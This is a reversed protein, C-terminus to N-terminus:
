GNCAEKLAKILGKSLAIAVFIPWFIAKAYEASDDETDQLLTICWVFAILAWLVVAIILLSLLVSM